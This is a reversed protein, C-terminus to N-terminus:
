SPDRSFRPSYRLSLNLGRAAGNVSSGHVRYAVDALNDLALLLEVGSVPWRKGMLLRQVVYGPTGGFPIRSDLEDGFSLRTAAQAWSLEYAIYGRSDGWRLSARGNLPPVRSLPRREKPENALPSPGEGLAYSLQQDIRLQHPLKLSLRQEFGTIWAPESLNILTFPRATRSGRCALDLEPCEADRREIGESLEMAFLWGELQAGWRKLKLGLEYTVSREAELSPNEIQFGQGTLQRATLDDLNPAAFGEELNLLLTLSPAPAWALGGGYTAGRWSRQVARTETELDASSEARTASLRAGLRGSLRGEGLSWAWRAASWLGGRQYSSGDIYQGRSLERTVDSRVLRDWARSDVLEYSGDAGYHLRARAGLLKAAESQSELRLEWVEVADRGINLYDVRDYSRREHQRQYSLGLKVRESLARQPRWKVWTFAHTRFQEDYSLCWTEPAEPPPCQDTRPADYQRYLRLGAMLEYGQARYRSILDASLAEYGTGMQTQQDARFRPVQKELRLLEPLDDREPLPGSAMLEGRRLGGLALYLGLRETPQWSAEARGVLGEDASSLQTTLALKLEGVQALPPRQGKVLVAGALANAGLWVSAGGRLVEISAVSLPDITFLYQNPGQRFLAHNLRFGDVMLLTHRGTRGRIFASAQGHASQQVYVGMFGKLAEPTSAVLGERIQEARSQEQARDRLATSPPRRGTVTLEQGMELAPPEREDREEHEVQPQPPPTPEAFSQTPEILGLSCLGLGLAYARAAWSLGYVRALAGHLPPRSQSNPQPDSQRRKPCNVSIESPSLPCM